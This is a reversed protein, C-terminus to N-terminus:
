GGRSEIFGSYSGASAPDGFYFVEIAHEGSFVIRGSFFLGGELSDHLITGNPQVVRYGLFVSDVAMEISVLSGEFGLLIYRATEGPGLRGEISASGVGRKIDLETETGGSGGLETAMGAYEQSLEIVIGFNETLCRWIGGVGDILTVETGADTEVVATVSVGAAGAGGEAAVADQCAGEAAGQAAAGLPLLAALLAISVFSRTM